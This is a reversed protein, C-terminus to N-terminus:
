LILAEEQRINRNLRSWRRAQQLARVRPFEEEEEQRAHRAIEDKLAAVNRIWTEQHTVCQLLNFIHIKMSAHERYLQEAAEARGASEHLLPYVVDEEALAHKAITRKFRLLLWLRRAAGSAPTEEMEGLLSLLQRHQQILIGFPDERFVSTAMGRIHAYVPPLLRSILIGGGVGAAAMWIGSTRKKRNIGMVGENFCGADRRVVTVREIERVPEQRM